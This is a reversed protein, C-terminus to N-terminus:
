SFDRCRRGVALRALAVAALRELARVASQFRRRSSQHQLLGPIGVLEEGRGCREFVADSRWQGWFTWIPPWALLRDAIASASTLPTPLAPPPTPPPPPPPTPDPASGPRRPPRPAATPSSPFAQDPSAYFASAASTCCAAAATIRRRPPPRM